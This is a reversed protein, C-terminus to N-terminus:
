AHKLKEIRSKDLQVNIIKHKSVVVKGKPMRPLRSVYKQESVLVEFSGSSTRAKSFYLAIQLADQLTEPDIEDGKKKRVIVHSGSMGHAHLWLDNGHAIQFTVIENSAANKGAFIEFGAKSVFRHYPLAKVQTKPAVIKILQYETNIADIQEMETAAEAKQIAEDWKKAEADFRKLLAELPSLAKKLKQSKTFMEDLMEPPTAQPNLAITVNQNEKKWDSVTISDMGRKLLSFHAKVLEALHQVEEFEQSREYQAQANKIAKALSSRKKQLAKITKLKEEDFTM